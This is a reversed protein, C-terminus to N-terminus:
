KSAHAAKFEEPSWYFGVGGMASRFEALLAPLRAELSARLVDPEAIIENVSADPWCASSRASDMDGKRSWYLTNALYHLPGGTSVLHWRVLPALEPFVKAIEDHMCGGAAIDRRRLSEATTIDATINFTNHGNDCEDDFRIKVKMQGNTGYGKIPRPESIWHQKFWCGPKSLRPHITRHTLRGPVGMVALTKGSDFTVPNM